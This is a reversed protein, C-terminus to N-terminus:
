ITPHLMIWCSGTWLASVYFKVFNKLIAGLRVAMKELTRNCATTKRTDLLRAETGKLEDALKRTFTAIGSMRQLFNLATREATLLSRAKGSVVFVRDGKKIADGDNMMMDMKIDPDVQRFVERAVEIGALIGDDKAMLVAKGMAQEPITALSTHEGDGIDEQLALRVIEEIKM